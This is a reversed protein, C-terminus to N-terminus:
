CAAELAEELVLKGEYLAKGIVAGAVGSDRLDRVDDPTSIGGSAIWAATPFKRVLNEYLQTNPGMMLGDRRIDTSLFHRVGAELLGPVVDDIKKGSSEQWGGWHIRDDRVDLAVCFRDAGYRNIWSKLLEPSVLATSGVVIRDVGIGVLLEVDEDRRIGGGVQLVLSPLGRMQTIIESVLFQGRKAGDLDVVHIHTAGTRLFERAQEVPSIFYNKVSAFSGETLRVCLNGLIDIAPFILM